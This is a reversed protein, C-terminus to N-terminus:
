NHALEFKIDAQPALNIAQSAGQPRVVLDRHSLRMHTFASQLSQAAREPHMDTDIRLTEIATGHGNMRVPQAETTIRVSPSMRKLTDHFPGSLSIRDFVDPVPDSAQGAAASQYLPCILHVMFSSKNQM